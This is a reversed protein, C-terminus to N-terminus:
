EYLHRGTLSTFIDDLTVSRYNFRDITLNKTKLYNFLTLLQYQVDDIVISGINLNYDWIISLPSNELNEPNIKEHLTFEM